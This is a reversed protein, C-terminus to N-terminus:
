AKALKPAQEAVTTQPAREVPKKGFSHAHSVFMWFNSLATIVQVNPREVLYAHKELIKEREDRDSCPILFTCTAGTKQAAAIHAPNASVLMSNPSAEAKLYEIFAEDSGFAQTYREVMQAPSVKDGKNELRPLVQLSEFISALLAKNPATLEQPAATSAFVVEGGLQLHAEVALNMGNKAESVKLNPKESVSTDFLSSLVGPELISGLHIIWKCSEAAAENMSAM